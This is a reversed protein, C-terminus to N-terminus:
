GVIGSSEIGQVFRKQAILYVILLPTIVLIAATNLLIGSLKSGAAVASNDSLALTGASSIVNNLLNTNLFFLPAYYNDTWQWAFSFLFISTMMPVSLPLIIRVFTVFVGAGDVETAEQLENPVGKFYQRMMFIFLGNKLGLGTISLLIHPFFTDTIRFGSGTVLKLLGAIDFNLFEMYYSVSLAQPPIIITFIAFAFFLKNGRFHFKAFGYGIVTCFFTQLLGTVLSLLFTNFLANFYGTKGIVFQLNFLSPNRPIYHVTSDIIDQSSMFMSTCKIIFPYLIIFSLGTLLIYKFLLQLAASIKNRKWPFLYKKIQINLHNVTLSRM